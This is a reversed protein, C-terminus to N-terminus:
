MKKWVTEITYKPAFVQGVSLFSAHCETVDCLNFGDLGDIQEKHPKALRDGNIHDGVLM